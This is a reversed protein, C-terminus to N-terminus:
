HRSVGMGFGRPPRVWTGDVNNWTGTSIERGTEADLVLRCGDAGPLLLRGCREAMIWQSQSESDSILRRSHGDLDVFYIPGSVFTGQGRNFQAAIGRRSSTFSPVFRWDYDSAVGCEVRATDFPIARAECEEAKAESRLAELSIMDAHRTGPADVWPSETCDDEDTFLANTQLWRWRKLDRSAQWLECRWWDQEGPREDARLVVAQWCSSDPNFWWDELEGFDPLSGVFEPKAGMRWAVRYISDGSSFWATNFTTDWRVGAFGRVSELFLQDTGHAPDHLRWQDAQISSGQYPFAFYSIVDSCREDDTAAASPLLGLLALLIMAIAPVVQSRIEGARAGFGRGAEGGGM